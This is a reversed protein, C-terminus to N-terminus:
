VVSRKAEDPAPAQPQRGYIFTVKNGGVKGPDPQSIQVRSIDLLKFFYKGIEGTVLPYPTQKKFKGYDEHLISTGELDRILESKSFTTIILGSCSKLCNSVDVNTNDM